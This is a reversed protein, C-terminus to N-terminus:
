RFHEETIEDVESPLQVVKACNDQVSMGRARGGRALAQFFELAQVDTMARDFVAVSVSTVTAPRLFQIRPNLRWSVMPGSRDPQLSDTKYKIEPASLVKAECTIFNDAAQVLQGALRRNDVRQGREIMLVELPYFNFGSTGKRETALPLKPYKLEMHYQHYFYQQVSMEGENTDFFQRILMLCPM